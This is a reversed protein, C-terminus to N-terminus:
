FWTSPSPYREDDYPWMPDKQFHHGWRRRITHLEYESLRAVRSKSEYHYLEAFPTWVIRYGLSGTKLCLDVDNYNSPMFTCMGGVEFFVDLPMMSCAATVGSVEHDLTFTGFPGLSGRAEGFGIHGPGGGTYRHGGHQITGDEFYLMPGVMGVGPQQCLALMTEIWDPSIVEVDDNLLLVYEGTAYAVGRNIKASFNFPAEWVVIKVKDGGIMRLQEVVGMPAVADVVVIIEVNRYTSREIIDHVAGVVMTRVGGAVEAASGRTPIIISVLPEGQVERRIRYVGTDHTQEVTGAIGTRALHDTLARRAADFVPTTDGSHSVSADHTRWRYLMRPIHEVRRAQETIRLALDYDQSGDYGTRLGGVQAVLSRRYASLHNIYMQGRLREPSWVPKRMAGLPHGKEDIILEDTYVLDVDDHAEIVEALARLAGPELIDDHDLLAIFDGLARDFGANTAAVIGGNDQVIVEVQLNQAAATLVATVDADQSGDDVCILQWYPYDQTLVSDIMEQLYRRKPRYVPVVVTFTVPAHAGSPTPKGTVTSAPAVLPGMGLTM